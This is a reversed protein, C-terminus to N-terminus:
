KLLIMKKTQVFSEAQIKYFYIGSALTSADFNIRYSGVNKEENVLSRVETGLVDYIKLIVFSTKPISYEITTSPNFPNPYNQSLIYTTPIIKQKDKINTIITGYSSLFGAIISSTGNSSSGDFPVGISSTIRTNTTSTIGFGGSFSSGNVKSNQSVIPVTFLFIAIFIKKMDVEGVKIKQNSCYGIRWNFSAKFHNIIVM